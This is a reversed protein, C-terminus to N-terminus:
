PKAPTATKTGDKADDKLEVNYGHSTLIKKIKDNKVSAVAMDRILAPGVQQSITNGANIQEQQSQLTQQKVSLTQQQTQAEQQLKQLASQSGQNTSNLVFLWVGLLLSIGAAITAVLSPLSKM